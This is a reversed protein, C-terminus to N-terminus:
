KRESSRTTVDLERHLLYTVEIPMDDMARVKLVVQYYKPLRGTANTMKAVLTRALAPDTFAQVGGIISSIKNGSLYLIEGNGYLSPVHSILTYSEETDQPDAPPRDVISSPEGPRPSLIRVGGPDLVIQEVVPLTQLQRNGSVPGLFVVNGMAMEPRTLTDSGTVVVDRKRPGLFEGLLFAVNAAGAGASGSAPLCVLLPRNPVLMPAWLQQLEPTWTIRLGSKQVRWLTTGFYLALAVAVVLAAVLAIEKGYWRRVRAPELVAAVAPDVLAPRPEFTVKFGGKPLDVVIPDEAGESRYYEALKQRLRGVHMRVTSEQRPDYSAPKGFVDLGITYEKLSDAAGALSKDALYTLLNRHVESTRFIQSQLIRQIQAQTTELEGVMANTIM